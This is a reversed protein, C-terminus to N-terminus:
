KGICFQAFVSDLIQEVSEAGTIEGIARLASRLDLAIYEPAVNNNLTAHAQDAHELARRLCDQHRANIAIPNETQWHQHSVRALIAEALGELGNEAQCSIRLAEQEKWDPHEPLDSKNLLLLGNSAGAM